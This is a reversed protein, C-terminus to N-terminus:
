REAGLIRPRGELLRMAKGPVTNSDFDGATPAVATRSGSEGADGLKTADGRLAGGTPNALM